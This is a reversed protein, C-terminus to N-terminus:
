KGKEISLLGIKKGLATGADCDMQFHLGAYLRSISAEEAMKNLNEAESPFINGLITAATSSFVSHGSPYSPFNPLPLRTNVSPDLQSPRPFCYFTKADWCVIAADMLGRNLLALTRVIDADNSKNKTFIECAITNWHGVPTPSFEADSWWTIVDMRKKDQGRCYKKVIEIEKKMEDSNPAPPAAPRMKAADKVWWGRVKGFFPEITPRAPKQKSLWAIEGKETRRSYIQTWQTATGQANDMGDKEARQIAKQAIAFGLKEATKVDNDTHKGSLYAAQRATELKNEIEDMAAPFMYKLVEASAAAITMEASPYQRATSAAASLGGEKTSMKQFKAQYYQAAFLADYQAVSVYALVRSAYPPNAFPYTPLDAAHARNPVPYGSSDPLVRPPVNHAAIMQRTFDNWHLLPNRQWHEANLRQVETLKATNKKIESLDSEYTKADNPADVAIEDWSKLLIPADTELSSPHLIFPSHSSFLQNDVTQAIPSEIKDALFAKSVSPDGKQTFLFLTASFFYLLSQM